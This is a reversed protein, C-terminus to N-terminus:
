QVIVLMAVILLIAVSGVSAPLVVPQATNITDSTSDASISVSDTSTSTTDTSTPNTPTAEELGSEEGGTSSPSGTATSSAETSTPSSTPDPDTIVTTIIEECVSGELPNDTVILTINENVLLNPPYCVKVRLNDMELEAAIGFGHCRSIGGTLRQISDEMPHQLCTGFRLELTLSGLNRLTVVHTPDSCGASSSPTLHLTAEEVTFTFNNVNCLCNAVATLQLATLAGLIFNVFM